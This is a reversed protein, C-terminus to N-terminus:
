PGRPLDITFTSPGVSGEVEAGTLAPCRLPPLGRGTLPEPARGVTLAAGAGSVTLVVGLHGITHLIDSIGSAVLM